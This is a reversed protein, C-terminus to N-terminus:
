AMIAFGGIITAVGTDRIRVYRDLTANLPLAYGGIGTIAPFTGRTNWAANDTSTQVLVAGLGSTYAIVELIVLYRYTASVWGGGGQDYGTSNFPAGNFATEGFLVKGPHVGASSTMKTALTVLKDTEAKLAREIATTIWLDAEDDAVPTTSSGPMCALCPTDVRLAAQLQNILGSVDGGTTHTYWGELAIETALTGPQAQRHFSPGFGTCDLAPIKLGYNYKNHHGSFNYGNFYYALTKGLLFDPM